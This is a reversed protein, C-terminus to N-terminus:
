GNRLELSWIPLLFNLVISPGALVIAQVFYYFSRATSTAQAAALVAQEWQPTLGSRPM